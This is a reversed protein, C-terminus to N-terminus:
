NRKNGSIDGTDHTHPAPTSVARQFPAPLGDGAPHLAELADLTEQLAELADLRLGQTFADCQRRFILGAADRSLFEVPLRGNLSNAKQLGEAIAFQIVRKGIGAQYEIVCLERSRMRMRSIGCPGVAHEVMELGFHQVHQRAALGSARIIEERRDAAM